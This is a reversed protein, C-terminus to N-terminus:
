HWDPRSVTVRRGARDSVRRDLDAHNKRSLAVKGMVMGLRLEVNVTDGCALAM